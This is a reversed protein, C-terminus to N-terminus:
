DSRCFCVFALGFALGTYFYATDSVNRLALGASEIEDRRELTLGAADLAARWATRADALELHAQAIAEIDAFLDHEGRAGPDFIGRAPVKRLALATLEALTDAHGRPCEVKAASIVHRL